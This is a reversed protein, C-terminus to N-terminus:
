LRDSDITVANVYDTYVLVLADGYYYSDHERCICVCMCVRVWQVSSRLTTGVAIKADNVLQQFVSIFSNIMMLFYALISVCVCVCVRVCM